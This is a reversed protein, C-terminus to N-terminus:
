ELKSKSTKNYFDRARNEYDECYKLWKMSNITDRTGFAYHYLSDDFVKLSDDLKYFVIKSSDKNLVFQNERKDSIVGHFYPEIRNPFRELSVPMTFLSDNCIEYRLQYYRDLKYNNFDFFLVLTDTAHIEKYNKENYYWRGRISIEREPSSACGFMLVIMVFLLNKKM